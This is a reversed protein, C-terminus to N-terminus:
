KNITFTFKAGQDLESDVAISGGQDEVLKKVTALGIGSNQNGYKDESAIVEFMKFIKGYDKLAIGPGNDKIFFHYKDIDETIGIDIKTIEKNNYKIANSILNLMIQNIAQKNVEIRDLETILNIQCTSDIVLLSEIDQKLSRTDIISKKKILVRESRSHELLGDILAGLNASSLERCNTKM